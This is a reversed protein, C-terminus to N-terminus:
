QFFEFFTKKKKKKIERSQMTKQSKFQISIRSSISNLNIKFDNKRTKM